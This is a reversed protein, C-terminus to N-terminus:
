SRSPDLSPDAWIAVREIAGSADRQWALAALPRASRAVTPARPAVDPSPASQRAMPFSTTWPNWLDRTTVPM